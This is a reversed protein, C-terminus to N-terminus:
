IANLVRGDAMVKWPRIANSHGLGHTRLYEASVDWIKGLEVLSPQVQGQDDTSRSMLVTEEGNWTWPFGFRTHSKPLVPAQLEADRWTQGNDTSVEVKRIAGAGSWALGTIEYFGHGDLRQGGAPRTIVSNAGM